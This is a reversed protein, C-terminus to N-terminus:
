RRLGTLLVYLIHHHSAYGLLVVITTVRAYGLLLITATVGRAYGPLLNRYDRRYCVGAFNIRHDHECVGAFNIRYDHM